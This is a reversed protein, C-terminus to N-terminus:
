VTTFFYNQITDVFTDPSGMYPSTVNKATADKCALILTGLEYWQASITDDLQDARGTDASFKWLNANFSQTRTTNEGAEDKVTTHVRMKNSNTAIAIAM